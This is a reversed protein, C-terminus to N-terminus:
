EEDIVDYWGKWKCIAYAIASSVLLTLPTLISSPNFLSLGYVINSYATIALSIILSIAFSILSGYLLYRIILAISEQLGWRDRKVRSYDRIDLFATAMFISTFAAMIVLSWTTPAMYAPVRSLISQPGQISSNSLLKFVLQLTINAPCNLSESLYSDGKILSVNIVYPDISYFAIVYNYSGQVAKTLKVYILGGYRGSGSINQTSIMFIDQPLNSTLVYVESSGTYSIRLEDNLSLDVTRQITMTSASGTFILLYTLVALAKVMNLYM